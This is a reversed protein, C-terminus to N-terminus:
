HQDLLTSMEIVRMAAENLRMGRHMALEQLARHADDESCHRVHMIIAKARTVAKIQAVESKMDDLCKMRLRDEEFRAQAVRLIGPLRALNVSGALYSTVGRRLAARISESRADTCFMVIPRAYRRHIAQVQDLLMQGPSCTDIIVTDPLTDAVHQALHEATGLEAVLIYGCRQLGDKLRAAPRGTDNMVLLQMSGTRNTAPDHKPVAAM